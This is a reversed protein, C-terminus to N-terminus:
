ALGFLKTAAAVAQARAYLWCEERTCNERTLLLPAPQQNSHLVVIRRGGVAGCRTCVWGKDEKSSLRQAAMTTFKDSPSFVHQGAAARDEGHNELATIQESLRYLHSVAPGNKSTCTGEVRLLYNLLSTCAFLVCPVDTRSLNTSTTFFM